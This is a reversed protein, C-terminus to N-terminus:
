NLCFFVRVASAPPYYFSFLPRDKDKKYDKLAKRSQFFHAQKKVIISQNNETWALNPLLWNRNNLSM